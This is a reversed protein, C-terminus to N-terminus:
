SERPDSRVGGSTRVAKSGAGEHPFDARHTTNGGAEGAVTSCQQVRNRGGRGGPTVDGMHPLTIISMNSQFLLIGNLVSFIRVEIFFLTLLVRSVGAGEQGCFETVLAHAM